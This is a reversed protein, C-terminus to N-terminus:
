AALSPDTVAVQLAAWEPLWTGIDDSSRAIEQIVKALFANGGQFGLEKLDDEAAQALDKGAFYCLFHEYRRGGPQFEPRLADFREVVADLDVLQTARHDAVSAEIGARCGTETLDDPFRYKSKGREPGFSSSLPKFRPREASLATRAAQYLAIKDRAVELAQQYRAPEPARDGLAKAVIAPDILYNEIEKREWRWGLRTNDSAMWVLPEGKPGDPASRFDGDLLGLVLGQGLAERHAKICNGM